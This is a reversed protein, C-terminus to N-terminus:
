GRPEVVVPQLARGVPGRVDHLVTDALGIGDPGLATRADLGMWEGEPERFLAVTLDTSVFSHAEPDLAAGVGNGADAACVLRQLPSPSESELLPVRMRLWMGMHGEGFRGHMLRGQMGTHYGVKPRFFTLMYPECGDPARAPEAATEAVGVAARRIFLAEATAVVRDGEDRLEARLTRVRRGDRAMTVAVRLLEIPIPRVFAFSVRVVRMDGGAAASAVEVARALLASPPGGHQHLDSWPGRTAETARFVGGHEGESGGERVFFARPHDPSLGHDPAM